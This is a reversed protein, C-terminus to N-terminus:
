VRRDLDPALPPSGAPRRTRAAPKKEQAHRYDLLERTTLVLRAGPLMEPDALLERRLKAFCLDPADQFRLERAAFAERTVLLVFLRAKLGDSVRLTYERGDDTTRFGVYSLAPPRLKAAREPLEIPAPEPLASDPRLDLVVELALGSGQGAVDV